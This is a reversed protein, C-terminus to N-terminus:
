SIKDNSEAKVCIISVNDRAGRDLSLKMLEDAILNPPLSNMVEYIEQDSIEKYLGDSCLLFTDNDQLEILDMDLYLEAAAGVARTIVNAAPHSEAEDRGIEGQKLLAEVESHDQTLQEGEGTRVLYVRSDGAWMLLCHKEHFLIAVITTGTIKGSRKSHQFLERNAALLSDEVKDVYTSFDPDFKTNDLYSAVMQSAMDGANHGGMGDAIAWLRKEPLEICADENIQRQCGVHSISASVMTFEKGSIKRTAAPTFNPMATQGGIVQQTKDRDVQQTTDRDNERVKDIDNM